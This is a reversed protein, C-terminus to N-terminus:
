EVEIKLQLLDVAKDVNGTLVMGMVEPQLQALEGNFAPTIAITMTRNSDMFEALQMGLQRGFNQFNAPLFLYYNQLQSKFQDRMAAPALTRNVRIFLDRVSAADSDQYRRITIMPKAM